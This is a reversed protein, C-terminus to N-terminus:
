SLGVMSAHWQSSIRVAQPVCYRKSAQSTSSRMTSSSRASTIGVGWSQSSVHRTCRVVIPGAPTHRTKHKDDSCSTYECQTPCDVAPRGLSVLAAQLRAAVSHESVASKAAAGVIIMGAIGAVASVRRVTPHIKLM